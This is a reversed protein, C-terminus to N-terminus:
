PPRMTGGVITASGRRKTKMGGRGDFRVHAASGACMVDSAMPIATLAGCRVYRATLRGARHASTISSLASANVTWSKPSCSLARRSSCCAIPAHVSGEASAKELSAAVAYGVAPPGNAPVAPTCRRSNGSEAAVPATDDKRRMARPPHAAAAWAPEVKTPTFSKRHTLKLWIRHEALGHSM